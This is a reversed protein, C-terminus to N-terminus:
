IYKFKFGLYLNDSTLSKRIGRMISEINTSRTLKENILYRACDKISNFERENMLIAKERCTTKIFPKVGSSKIVRAVSKPDIGLERAVKSYVKLEKYKTIILATDLKLNGEGGLTANYGDFFSNYKSIYEKEKDNIINEEFEGLLIISFNVEGLLNIAKYLPRSNNRKAEYFHQNLRDNLSSFTKGIYVKNNFKNIIKYLKGKLM